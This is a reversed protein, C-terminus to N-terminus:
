RIHIVLNRSTLNGTADYARVVILATTDPQMPVSWVCTYPASPLTCLLTSNVVFEVKAVRLNDTATARITVTSGAQVTAGNLPQTITLSPATTDNPSLYPHSPWPFTLHTARFTDQASPTRLLTTPLPFSHERGAAQQHLIQQQRLVPVLLALVIALAGASFLMFRKTKNIANTKKEKM